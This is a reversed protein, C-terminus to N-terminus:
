GLARYVSAKSLRPPLSNLRRNALGFTTTVRHGTRHWEARSQPFKMGKGLRIIGGREVKGQATRHWNPHWYYRGDSLHRSVPCAARV